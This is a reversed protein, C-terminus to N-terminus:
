MKWIRTRGNDHILSKKDGLSQTLKTPVYTLDEVVYKIDYKKMFDKVRGDDIGFSSHWKYSGWPLVGPNPIYAGEFYFEMSYPSLKTSTNKVDKVYGYTLTLPPTMPISIHGNSVAAMRGIEVNTTYVHSNEIIHNRSWIGAANTYESMYFYEDSAGTRFHSYFSSFLVLSCILIILLISSIKKRCNTINKVAIAIYFVILPLTIFKGYIASYFIPIFFLTSFLIFYEYKTKENKLTLYLFGPVSFAITPGIYRTTTILLSIFGQYKEGTLFLKTAFPIVFLICTTLLYISNLYKSFKINKLFLNKRALLEVPVYVLILPICFYFFNHTARLFILSLIILLLKKWSSSKKLLLFIFLPFLVLFLGRASANWSTFALIGSSISYFLSLLYKFLFENYIAGAMVYATFAGLLGLSLSYLYVAIEMDIGTAQSIGSLSFPVASSYSYSTMGFASSWDTWWRAEGFQTISNALSHLQYTDGGIEHPASPIRIVINLIILLLWLLTKKQFNLAPNM